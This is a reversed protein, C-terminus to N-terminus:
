QLRLGKMDQRRAMGTAGSTGDANNMDGDDDGNSEGINRCYNFQTSRKSIDVLNKDGQETMGNEMTLQNALTQKVFTEKERRDRLNPIKSLYPTM